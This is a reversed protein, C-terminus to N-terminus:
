DTEPTTHKLLYSADATRVAGSSGHASTATLYVALRYKVIPELQVGFQTAQPKRTLASWIQGFM